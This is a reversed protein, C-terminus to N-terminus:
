RDAGAKLDDLIAKLELAGATIVRDGPRVSQFGPEPEPTLQARVHVADRSRRVVRVCRQEYIQKKTDPQVFIFTHQGAEVVAATPLVVEGTPPLTISATIFQGARLRGAANDIFGTAAFGPSGGDLLPGVDDFQGQIVPAGPVASLPITWRREAPKLALLAQVDEEHVSVMVKLRDLKAIQFLPITLDAVIENRSVNREVITGDEPATVRVRSWRELQEKTPKLKEQPKETKDWAEATKKAKQRVAEIEEVPIGHAKLITEARNVASLAAQVNRRATLLLIEPVTGPAAEYRELIMKDLALQLLADFLDTKKKGADASHLVVLLDGKKVRDGARLERHVQRGMKESLKDDAAQGIEAVEAPTFRGRVRMLRTPDLTLSCPLRLVRPKAATRLKVEATQLGLKEVMTPSLRVGDGRVLGVGEEARKEAPVQQASVGLASLVFVVAVITRKIASMTRFVEESLTYPSVRPLSQILLHRALATGSM